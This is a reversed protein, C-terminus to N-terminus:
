GLIATIAAEHLPALAVNAAHSPHVAAGSPDGCMGPAFVSPDASTGIAAMTDVYAVTGARMLARIDNRLASPSTSCMPGVLLPTGGAAQVLAVLAQSRQWQYATSQTDNSTFTPVGVIVGTGVLGNDIAAQLRYQIDDWKAGGQSMRGFSIPTGKAALANAARWGPSLYNCGGGNLDADTTSDGVYLLSAIATAHELLVGGVSVMGDRPDGWSGANATAPTSAQANYATWSLLPHEPFAASFSTKSYGDPSAHWVAGTMDAALVLINPGGDAAAIPAIDIAAGLAYGPRQSPVNTPGAPVVLNANGAKWGGAPNRVVTASAAVMHNTITRPIAGTNNFGPNEFLIRVSSFPIRTRLISRVAWSTNTDSPSGLPQSLTKFNAFARRLGGPPPPPPPVPTDAIFETTVTIRVRGPGTVVVDQVQTAM